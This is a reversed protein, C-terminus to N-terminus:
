DCLDYIKVTCHRLCLWKCLAYSNSCSYQTIWIYKYVYTANRFLALVCFCVTINRTDISFRNWWKDMSYFNVWKKHKYGEYQPFSVYEVSFLTESLVTETVFGWCNFESMFNYWSWMLTMRPNKFIQLWLDTCLSDSGRPASYFKFHQNNKTLCCMWFHLNQKLNEIWAFSWCCVKPSTMM